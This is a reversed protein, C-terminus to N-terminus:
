LSSKPDEYKLQLGPTESNPRWHVRTGLRQIKIFVNCIATEEQRWSIPTSLPLQTLKTLHHSCLWILATRHSSHALNPLTKVITLSDMEKWQTSKAWFHPSTKSWIQYSSQSSSQLGPTTLMLEQFGDARFPSTRGEVVQSNVVLHDDPEQTKTSVFWWLWGEAYRKVIYRKALITHNEFYRHFIVCYKIMLYQDIKGKM